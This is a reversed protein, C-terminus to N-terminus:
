AKEKTETANPVLDIHAGLVFAIRSLIDLGVSYKGKEIRSLNAPDINALLALDRAEMGKNERLKRIQGGIRVRESARNGGSMGLFNVGNLMLDRWINSSMSEKDESFNKDFICEILHLYYNITKAEHYKGIDTLVQFVEGDQAQVEVIRNDLVQAKSKFPM